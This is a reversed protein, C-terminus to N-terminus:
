PGNGGPPNSSDQHDGGTNGKDPQNQGATGTPLPSDKLAEIAMRMLGHVDRGLPLGEGPNVRGSAFLVQMLQEGLERTRAERQRNVSGDQGQLAQGEEDKLEDMNELGEFRYEVRQEEWAASEESISRDKDDVQEIAEAAAAM